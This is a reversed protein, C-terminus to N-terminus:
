QMYYFDYLSQFGEGGCSAESLIRLNNKIVDIILFDIIM